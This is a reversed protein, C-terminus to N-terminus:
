LKKLNHYQTLTKKAVKNLQFLGYLNQSEWVRPFMFQWHAGHKPLSHICIGEQVIEELQTYVKDVCTIFHFKDLLSKPQCLM